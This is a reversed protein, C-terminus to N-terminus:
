ELRAAEVNTPIFERTGCRRFWQSARYHSARAGALVGDSLVAKKVVVDPSSDSNVASSSSMMSADKEAVDLAGCRGNLSGGTNFVDNTNITLPVFGMLVNRLCTLQVARGTSGRRAYGAHGVPCHHCAACRACRECWGVLRADCGGSAVSLLLALVPLVAPLLYSLWLPQRLHTAFRRVARPMALARLSPVLRLQLARRNFSRQRHHVPRLGLRWPFSIGDRRLKGGHRRRRKKCLM